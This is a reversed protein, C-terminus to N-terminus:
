RAANHVSFLTNLTLYPIWVAQHLLAPLLPQPPAGQVHGQQAAQSLLCVPLPGPAVEQGNCHYVQRIHTHTHTHTHTHAHSPVQYKGQEFHLSENDCAKHLTDCYTVTYWLMGCYIVTYWQMNCYVVYWQIGCYVM